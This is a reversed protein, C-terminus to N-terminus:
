PQWRLGQRLVLSLLHFHQLWKVTGQQKLDAAMFLKCARHVALIESGVNHTWSEAMEENSEAGLKRSVRIQGPIGVCVSLEVVVFWSIILLHSPPILNQLM